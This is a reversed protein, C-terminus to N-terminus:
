VNTEGTKLVRFEVVWVWPNKDWSGTGNISDWLARYHEVPTAADTLMM